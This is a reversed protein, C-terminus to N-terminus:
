KGGKEQYFLEHMEENRNICFGTETNRLEYSKFDNSGSCGDLMVLISFALGSLKEEETINQNKWYDILSWISQLFEKLEKNIEGM